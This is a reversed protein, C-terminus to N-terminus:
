SHYFIVVALHQYADSQMDYQFFSSCIDVYPLFFFWSIRDLLLDICAYLPFTFLSVLDFQRLVEIVMCQFTHLRRTGKNNGGEVEDGGVKKM